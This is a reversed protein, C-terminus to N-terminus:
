RPGNKGLVHHAGTRMDEKAKWIGGEATEVGGREMSPMKLDSFTCLITPYLSIAHDCRFLSWPAASEAEHPADPGAQRATSQLSIFLRLSHGALTSGKKWEEKKRMKM